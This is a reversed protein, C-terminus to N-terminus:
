ADGPDSSTSTGSRSASRRTVTRPSSPSRASAGSSPASVDVEASDTYRPQGHLVEAHAFNEHISFNANSRETNDVLVSCVASTNHTHGPVGTVFYSNSSKDFPVVRRRASGGTQLAFGDTPMSSVVPRVEPRLQAM